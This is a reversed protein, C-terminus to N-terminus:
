LKTTTGHLERAKKVIEVWLWVCDIAPNFPEDKPLEENAWEALFAILEDKTTVDEIDMEQRELAKLARTLEGSYRIRKSQPIYGEPWYGALKEAIERVLELAKKKDM